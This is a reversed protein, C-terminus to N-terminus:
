FIPQEYGGLIEAIPTLDHDANNTNGRGPSPSTENDNGVNQNKSKGVADVDKRIKKKQGSISAQVMIKPGFVLLCATVLAVADSNESAFKGMVTEQLINCLPESISEAQDPTVLWHKGAKTAVLGFASVIFIQVNEQLSKAQEQAELEAKSPRGRKTRKPAPKPKPVEEPKETKLDELDVLRPIPTDQKTDAAGAGTRGGTGGAGTSGTSTNRNNGGTGGTGTANTPKKNGSDRRHNDVPKVPGDAKGM